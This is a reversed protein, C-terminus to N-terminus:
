KKPEPKKTESKKAGPTIILTVPTDKPPVHQKTAVYVTDDGGTELPIDIVTYPDHFVTVVSKDRNAAYFENGKDDKEFKSGVFVWEIHEM